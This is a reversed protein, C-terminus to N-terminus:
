FDHRYQLSASYLTEDSNLVGSFTSQLNVEFANGKSFEYGISAGGIFSNDDESENVEGTPVKTGGSVNFTKASFDNEILKKM